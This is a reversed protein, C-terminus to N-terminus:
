YFKIKYDSYIVENPLYSYGDSQGAVIYSISVVNPTSQTDRIETLLWVRNYLPNRWPDTAPVTINGVAALTEYQLRTGDKRYVYVKASRDGRSGDFVIKLFNDHITVLNGGSSCSASPNDTRYDSPYDGTWRNPDSAGSCAMLDEGDLQLIDNKNNYGPIGGAPPTREIRSLGGVRWNTGLFNDIGAPRGLTSYNLNMAPELGRFAPMQIPYTYRFSGDPQMDHPMGLDFPSTDPQTVPVEAAALAPEAEAAADAAPSDPATDGAKSDPGDPASLPEEAGPRPAPEDAPAPAAEIESDQVDPGPHQHEQAGALPAAVLFLAALAPLHPRM